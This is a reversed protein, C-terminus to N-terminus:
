IAFELMKLPILLFSVSLFCHPSIGEKSPLLGSGLDTSNHKPFTNRSDLSTERM